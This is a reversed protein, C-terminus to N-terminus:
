YPLVSPDVHDRPVLPKLNSLWGELIVRVILCGIPALLKRNLTLKGRETMIKNLNEEREWVVMRNLHEAYGWIWTATWFKHSGIPCFTRRPVIVTVHPGQDLKASDSRYRHNPLLNERARKQQGHLLVSPWLPCRAIFKTLFNINPWSLPSSFFVPDTIGERSAQIM